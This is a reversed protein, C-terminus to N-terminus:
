TAARKGRRAASRGVLHERLMKVAEAELRARKEPAAGATLLLRRVRRAFHVVGLGLPAKDKPMTVCPAGEAAGCLKCPVIADAAVRFGLLGRKAKKMM